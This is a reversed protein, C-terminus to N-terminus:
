GKNEEILSEGNSFRVDQSHLYQEEKDLWMALDVCGGESLNCENEETKGCFECLLKARGERIEEQKTM